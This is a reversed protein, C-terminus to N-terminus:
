LLGTQHQLILLRLLSWWWCSPRPEGVEGPAVETHTPTRGAGPWAGLWAGSEEEVEEEEEEWRELPTAASASEFRLRWLEVPPLSPCYKTTDTLSEVEPESGPRLFLLAAVGGELEAVERTM